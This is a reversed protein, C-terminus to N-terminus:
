QCNTDLAVYNANYAGVCTVTGYAPGDLKTAGVYFTASANDNHVSNTKGKIVSHDVTIPGGTNANYIGFGLGVAAIDTVVDMLTLRGGPSAVSNHIGFSYQNGGSTTLKADKITIDFNLNEIGYAYDNGFAEVTLHNIEINRIVPDNSYLSIGAGGTSGLARAYVNTMSILSNDNSIGFAWPASGAEARVNEMSTFGGGTLFIARTRDIAGPCYAHVDKISMTNGNNYIAISYTTTIMLLLSIWAAVGTLLLQIRKSNM